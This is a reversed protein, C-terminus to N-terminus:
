RVLSRGAHSVTIQIYDDPFEVRFESRVRLRLSVVAQVFKSYPYVRIALIREAAAFTMAKAMAGKFEIRNLAPAKCWIWQM